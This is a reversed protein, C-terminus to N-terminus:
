LGGDAPQSPPSPGPARAAPRPPCARPRSGTRRRRSVPAPRYALRGIHLARATEVAQGLVDVVYAIDDETLHQHFPLSLIEQGAQETVPLARRWPVFARQLHNLLYHVGVGVERSRM